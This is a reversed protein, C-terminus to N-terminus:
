QGADSHGLSLIGPCLYDVTVTVMLRTLHEIVGSDVHFEANHMIPGEGVGVWLMTSPAKQTYFGFDEGKLSFRDGTWIMDEISDLPVAVDQYIANYHAKLTRVIDATLAEDNFVSDYGVRREVVCSGGMMKATDCCITEVREAFIDRAAQTKNRMMMDMQVEGAIINGATGGTIKGVNLTSAELPNVNKAVISNLTTIIQAAILIADVGSEPESSHATKGKVTVNFGDSYATLNKSGAIVCGVPENIVHLAFCADPLPDMLGHRIMERGGGGREEAPQFVLKVRGNLEDKMANLVAAVGLLNATHVDHGCAHMVGPNQSKYSVSVMEQIPLADMDGRLMLCRGPKGSDIHAIIGNEVPSNEYPIGLRELEKRVLRATEFEKFALEPNRHIQERMEIVHAAGERVLASLRDITKM